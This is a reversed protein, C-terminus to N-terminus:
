EICKTFIDALPIGLHYAREQQIARAMAASFRGLLQDRSYSCEQPIENEAALSSVIEVDSNRRDSM